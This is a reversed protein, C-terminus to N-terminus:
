AELFFNVDDQSTKKKPNQHWSPDLKSGLKAGFDVWFRGLLAGCELGVQMRNEISKGDIKLAELTSEKLTKPRLNFAVDVLFEIMHDRTPLNASIAFICLLCYTKRHKQSGRSELKSSFNVFFRGWLSRCDLWFNFLMM